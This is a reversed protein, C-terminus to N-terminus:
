FLGRQVIRNTPPEDSESPGSDVTLQKRPLPDDNSISANPTYPAPKDGTTDGTATVNVTKGEWETADASPQIFVVNTSVDGGASTSKDSDM